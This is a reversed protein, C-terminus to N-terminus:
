FVCWFAGFQLMLIFIRKAVHLNRCRFFFLEQGLGGGGWM